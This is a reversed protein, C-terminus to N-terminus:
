SARVSSRQSRTGNQSGEKPPSAFQKTDVLQGTTIDFTHLVVVGPRVGCSRRSCKVELLNDEMRGHMTGGCRLEFM